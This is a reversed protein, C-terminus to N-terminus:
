LADELDHDAPSVASASARERDQTKSDCSAPACPLGAAAAAGGAAVHWSTVSCFALVQFSCGSVLVHGAVSAGGGVCVGCGVSSFYVIKLLRKVGRFRM